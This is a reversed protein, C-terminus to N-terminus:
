EVHGQKAGVQQTRVGRWGGEPGPVYVVRGQDLDQMHMTCTNFLIAPTGLMTPFCTPHPGSLRGCKNLIADLLGPQVADFIKPMEPWLDCDMLDLVVPQLSPPPLACLDSIALEPAIAM